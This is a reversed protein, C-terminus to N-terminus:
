RNGDSGASPLLLELEGTIEHSWASFKKDACAEAPTHNHHSYPWKVEVFGYLQDCSPDFVVM